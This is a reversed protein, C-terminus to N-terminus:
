HPIGPNPPVGTPWKLMFYRRLADHSKVSRDANMRGTFQRVSGDAFAVNCTTDKKHRFRVNGQYPLASTGEPLTAPEINFYKYTLVDLIVPKSHGYTGPPTRGLADKVTLFRYQPTLQGFTAIRQGDIDIGVWLHPWNEAGAPMATDWALAADKHLQSARAPRSLSGPQPPTLELKPIVCVLYNTAYSVVYSRGQAAEPCVLAAPLSPRVGAHLYDDVAAGSRSGMHRAVLGAWSTSPYTGTPNPLPGQWTLGWPMSGGNEAAYAYMAQVISRLNAQCKVDRGRASVGSLVPLLLGIIIAIIGIVVLLEVLTFARSHNLFARRM